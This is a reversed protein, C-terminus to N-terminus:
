RIIRTEVKGAWYHGSRSTFRSMSGMSRSNMPAFIARGAQNSESYLDLPESTLLAVVLQAGTPENATFKFPMSDTPFVMQGANVRNNRDFQNPFLLIMEDQQSINIVHLYGSHPIDIRMSMTQGLAYSSNDASIRLHKGNDVMREHQQWRTGTASPAATSNLDELIAAMLIGENFGKSSGAHHLAIVQKGHLSFVPAGSSGGETDALYHIVNHDRYVEIIESNRRSVEKSRAQPHQIVKVQGRSAPIDASLEMVPYREALPQDLVILAYDLPKDIALYEQARANLDGLSDDQYHEMFVEIRSPHLTRGDHVVCHENTMLVNRAVLFGSCTSERNIVLHAVGKGLQSIETSPAFQIVKEFDPEGHITRSNDNFPVFPETSPFQQAEAITGSVLLATIIAFSIVNM